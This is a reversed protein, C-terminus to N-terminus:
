LSTICDRNDTTQILRQGIMMNSDDVEDNLSAFPILM